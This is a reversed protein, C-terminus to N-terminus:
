YINDEECKRRSLGHTGASNALVKFSSFCSFFVPTIPHTVSTDYKTSYQHSQSEEASVTQSTCLAANECACVKNISRDDSVRGWQVFLREVFNVHRDRKNSLLDLKKCECQKVGVQFHAVNNRLPCQM